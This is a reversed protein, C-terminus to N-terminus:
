TNVVKEVDALSRRIHEAEESDGFGEALKRMISLYVKRAGAKRPDNAIDGLRVAVNTFIANAEQDTLEVQM